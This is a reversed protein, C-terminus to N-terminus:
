QVKEVLFERYKEDKIRQLTSNLTAVPNYGFNWRRLGEWGVLQVYTGADAETEEILNEYTPEAPWTSKIGQFPDVKAHDSTKHLLALPMYRKKVETIRRRVDKVQPHTYDPVTVINPTPKQPQQLEIDWVMGDEFKCHYPPCWWVHVTGAMWKNPKWRRFQLHSIIYEIHDFTLPSHWGGCNITATRNTHITVIPTSYLTFIWDCGLTPVVRKKDESWAWESPSFYFKDRYGHFQVLAKDRNKKHRTTATHYNLFSERLADPHLNM